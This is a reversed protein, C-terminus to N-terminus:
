DGHYGGRARGGTGAPAFTGGPGKVAEEFPIDLECCGSNVVAIRVGYRSGSKNWEFFCFRNIGTNRTGTDMSISTHWAQSVPVEVKLRHGCIQKKKELCQFYGMTDLGSFSSIGALAGPKKDGTAEM